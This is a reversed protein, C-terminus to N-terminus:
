TPNKTAHQAMQKVVKQSEDEDPEEESSEQGKFIVHDGEINSISKNLPPKKIIDYLLSKDIVLGNDRLYALLEDVTWEAKEVGADIDAKLQNTTALLRVLLPDPEALEFLFM